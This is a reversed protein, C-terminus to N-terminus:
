LSANSRISLFQSFGICSLLLLTSVPVSLRRWLLCSSNVATPTTQTKAQILENATIAPRFRFLRRNFGFMEVANMKMELCLGLFYSECYATVKGMWDQDIRALFRSSFGTLPFFAGQQRYRPLLHDYRPDLTQWRHYATRTADMSYFDTAVFDASPEHILVRNLFKRWGNTGDCGGWCRIDYEMMFVFDYSQRKVQTVHRHWLVLPTEVTDYCRRHLPNVALCQTETTALWQISENKQIHEPLVGHTADFLIWVCCSGFSHTLDVYLQEISDDWKHTRLLYLCTTSTITTTPHLTRSTIFSEPRVVLDGDNDFPEHRVQYLCSYTSSTTSTTSPSESVTSLTPKMM